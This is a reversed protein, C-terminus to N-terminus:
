IAQHIFPHVTCNEALMVISTRVFHLRLLLALRVPTFLLPLKIKLYREKKGGGGSELGGETDDSRQTERERWELHTICQYRKAASTPAKMAARGQPAEEYRMTSINEEKNTEKEGRGGSGTLRQRGEGRESGSSM